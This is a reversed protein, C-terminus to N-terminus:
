LGIGRAAADGLSKALVNGESFCDIPRDQWSVGDNWEFVRFRNMIPGYIEVGMNGFLDDISYNSTVIFHRLHVQVTGYLIRGSFPLHDCWNKLAPGLSKADERSFDDLLATEQFEYDNWLLDHAKQYITPWQRRVASTKGAGSVRSWIWIGTHAVPNVFAPRANCYRRAVYELNKVQTLFFRPDLEAVEEVKGARCLSLVKSWKEKTAQAGTCPREGFVSFFPNRVNGKKECTGECYEVNEAVTGNSAFYAIEPVAKVLATKRRKSDFAIFMQLHRTGTTPAKEKGACMFAVGINKSMFRDVINACVYDSFGEETLDDWEIPYNNWTCTWHKTLPGQSGGRVPPAVSGVDDPLDHPTDARARAVRTVKAVKVPRKPKAVVVEVVDSDSDSDCVIKRKNASVVKRPARPAPPSSSVVPSLRSAVSLRKGGVFLSLSGEDEERQRNLLSTVSHQSDDDVDERVFEVDSETPLEDDSREEDPDCVDGRPEPSPTPDWNISM